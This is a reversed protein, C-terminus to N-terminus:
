DPDCWVKILSSLSNTAREVVVCYCIIMNTIPNYEILEEKIECIHSSLPVLKLTLSEAMIGQYIFDPNKGPATLPCKIVVEDTGTHSVGYVIAEGGQAIKVIELM